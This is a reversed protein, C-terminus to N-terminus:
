GTSTGTSATARRRRRHGRHPAACAARRARGLLADRLDGQVIVAVADSDALIHELTAGRQSINVPVSLAGIFQIGLHAWLFEPRNAMLIAVREGPRVGLELLGNAARQVNSLVDRWPVETDKWKLWTEDPHDAVRRRIVQEIAGQARTM